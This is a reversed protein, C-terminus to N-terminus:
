AEADCSGRAVQVVSEVPWVMGPHVGDVVVGDVVVDDVSLPEVPTPLLPSLPAPDPEPPGPVPLPWSAKVPELLPSIVM